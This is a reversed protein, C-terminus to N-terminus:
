NCVACRGASCSCHPPVPAPGCPGWRRLWDLAGTERRDSADGPWSRCLLTRAFRAADSESRSAIARIIAAVGRAQEDM